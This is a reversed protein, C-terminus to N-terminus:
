EILWPMEGHSYWCDFIIDERRAHIWGYSSMWWYKTVLDVSKWNRVTEVWKVVVEISDDNLELELEDMVNNVSDDNVELELKDMVYSM